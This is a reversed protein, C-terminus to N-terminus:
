ANELNINFHMSSHYIIIFTFFVWIPLQYRDKTYITLVLMLFCYCSCLLATSKSISESPDSM